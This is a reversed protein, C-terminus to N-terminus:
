TCNTDSLVYFDGVYDMLDGLLSQEPNHGPTLVWLRKGKKVVTGRVRIPPIGCTFTVTDGVRVRRGDSDKIM